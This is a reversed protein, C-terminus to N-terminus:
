AGNTQNPTRKSDHAGNQGNAAKQKSRPQQGNQGFQRVPQHGKTLTHQNKSQLSAKTKLVKIIDWAPRLQCAVHMLAKNSIINPLNNVQHFLQAEVQEIHKQNWVNAAM